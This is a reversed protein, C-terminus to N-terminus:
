WEIPDDIYGWPRVEVRVGLYEGDEGWQFVLLYNQDPVATIPGNDNERLFTFEADNLYFSGTINEGTCINSAETTSWETSLSADWSSEPAYYVSDGTLAGESNFMSLTKDVTFAYEDGEARLGKKRAESALFYPLGETQLEVQAMKPSIYIVEDKQLYGEDTTINANGYFMDTPEDALGDGSSRLQVTFESMTTGQAVQMQDAIVNGWVIFYLKQNAKYPTQLTIPQYDVIQQETMTVTELYKQDNGFVFITADTARRGETINDGAANLVNLTLTYSPCNDLDENICGTALMGWGICLALSFAKTKSFIHKM